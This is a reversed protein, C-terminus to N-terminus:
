ATAKQQTTTESVENSVKKRSYKDVFHADGGTASEYVEDPTKNGLAQHICESNYFRFYEALGHTMEM